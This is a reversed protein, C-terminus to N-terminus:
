NKGIAVRQFERDTLQLLAAIAEISSRFDVVSTLKVVNPVAPSSACKMRSAKTHKKVNDRSRGGKDTHFNLLITDGQLM